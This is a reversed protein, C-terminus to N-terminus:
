SGPKFPYTQNYLIIIEDTIDAESSYYAIATSLSQPSIYLIMTFNNDRAYKNFLPSMKKDMKGGFEKMLREYEKQADEQTRKIATELRDISEILETRKDASLMNQQNQLQQKKENFETQLNKLKDQKAKMWEEIKQVEAKGEDTETVARTSNVFGIKAQACVLLSLIMIFLISMALREKKM